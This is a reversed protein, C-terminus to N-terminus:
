GIAVAAAARRIGLIRAARKAVRSRYRREDGFDPVVDVVSFAFFPDAAKLSSPADDLQTEDIVGRCMQDALVVARGVSQELTRCDAVSAEVADWDIAHRSRLENGLAASVNTVVIQEVFKRVLEFSGIDFTEVAPDSLGSSPRQYQFSTHSTAASPRGEPGVVDASYKTRTHLANV